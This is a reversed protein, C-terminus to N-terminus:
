NVESRKRGDLEATQVYFKVQYRIIRLVKTNMLHKM